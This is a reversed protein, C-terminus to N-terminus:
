SLLENIAIKIDEHTKNEFNWVRLLGDKDVKNEIYIPQSIFTCVTQIDTAMEPKIYIYGKDRLRGIQTLLDITKQSM